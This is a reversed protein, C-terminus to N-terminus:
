EDAQTIDAVLVKKEMVIPAVLSKGKYELGEKENVLADLDTTPTIIIDKGMIKGNSLRVGTGPVIYYGNKTLVIEYVKSQITLNDQVYPGRWREPNILNMSGIESSVFSRVTLFDIYNKEHNFDAIGCEKNITDFIVKLRSVDEIITQNIIVRTEHSFQYWTVLFLFGLICSSTILTARPSLEMHHQKVMIEGKISIRWFCNLV